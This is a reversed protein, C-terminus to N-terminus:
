GDCSEVGASRARPEGLEVEEELGFLAKGACRALDFDGAFGRGVLGSFREVGGEGDGGAGEDQLVGVGDEGGEVGELEEAGAGEAGEM